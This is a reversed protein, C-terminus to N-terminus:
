RSARAQQIRRETEWPVELIKPDLKSLAQIVAPDEVKLAPLSLCHATHGGTRMPWLAKPGVAPNYAAIERATAVDLEAVADFHLPGCHRALLRATNPTLSNLSTFGTM